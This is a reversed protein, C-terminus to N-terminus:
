PISEQSIHSKGNLRQIEKRFYGALDIAITTERELLNFIQGKQEALWRNGCLMLLGVVGAVELCESRISALVLITGTHMMAWELISFRRMRYGLKAIETKTPCRGLCMTKNNSRELLHDMLM